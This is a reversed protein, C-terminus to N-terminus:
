ILESDEFGEFVIVLPRAQKGPISAAVGQSIRAPEPPAMQGWGARSFLNRAGLAASIGYGGAM